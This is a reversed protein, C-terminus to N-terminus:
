GKNGIIVTLHSTRKLIRSARGMARHRFRKIKPGEDVYAEKVYLSDIDMENNNEANSVASNLVKLM